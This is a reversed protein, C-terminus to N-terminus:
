KKKSIEDAEADAAKKLRMGHLRKYARAQRIAQFAKFNKMDDTIPMARIRKVVRKPPMVEGSLQTAKSIEEPTADGKKPKKSNLPFLIMKSKYEKLRQANLQLSEVSKNRRRFDVAIGMTRAINKSFGAAKIEELTFGRGARQKINYKFTPCAVVPRLKTLPRPAVLAAKAVRNERRRIKRAPQNFWTKVYKQWDKHFHGNPILQNGKSPM